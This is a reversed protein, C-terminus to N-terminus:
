SFRTLVGGFDGEFVIWTVWGVFSGCWRRWRWFLGISSFLLAFVGVMLDLFNSLLLLLLIILLVGIVRRIKLVLRLFIILILIKLLLHPIQLMLLFLTFMRLTGVLDFWFIFVESSVVLVSRFRLFIVGIAIFHVHGLEIFVHHVDDIAIYLHCPTTLQIILVKIINKILDLRFVISLPSM